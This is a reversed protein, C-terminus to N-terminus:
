IEGEIEGIEAIEGRVLHSLAACGYKQVDAHGLNLSLAAVLLPIADAAAM